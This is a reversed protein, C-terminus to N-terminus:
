EQSTEEAVLRKTISRLPKPHIDSFINAKIQEKQLAKPKQRRKPKLSPASVQPYNSLPISASLPALSSWPVPNPNNQAQLGITMSLQKCAQPEDQKVLSITHARFKALRDLLTAEVWFDSNLEDSINLHEAEKNPSIATAMSDHDSVLQSILDRRDIDTMHSANMCLFANHGKRMGGAPNSGLVLRFDSVLADRQTRLDREKREVDLLFQTQDARMKDMEKLIAKAAEPRACSLEHRMLRHGYADLPLQVGFGKYFNLVREISQQLQLEQEEAKDTTAFNAGQRQSDHVLFAQIIAHDVPPLKQLRMVAQILQFNKTEADFTASAFIAQPLHSM